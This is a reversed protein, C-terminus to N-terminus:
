SASLQRSRCFVEQFSKILNEKLNDIKLDRGLIDEACTMEIDMGCPKILRFGGLDDSEINISLGHFTIWNKISIGISSIKKSGIWAGTLGSRNGACIGLGAFFSIAVQELQRLFLNIDKKLYGLNFIPYCTIQGPGHYTIDGGREVRLLGIGRKQLEERSVLLSDEKATRGLTIVPYHRCIILASELLGERVELHIKKQLSLAREYEILGLDFIEFKM